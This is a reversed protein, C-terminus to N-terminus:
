RTARGFNDIVISLDLGDVVQDQNVDERGDYGAEGYKQALLAYDIGNIVGDENIDARLRYECFSLMYNKGSYQPNATETTTIVSYLWCADTRTTGLFEVFADEAITRKEPFPSGLINILFENEYKPMYTVRYDPDEM